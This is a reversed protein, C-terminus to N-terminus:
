EVKYFLLSCDGYIFCGNYILDLAFDGVHLVTSVRNAWQLTASSRILVYLKLQVAILVRNGAVTGSLGQLLVVARAVLM